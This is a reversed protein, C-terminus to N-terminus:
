FVTSVSKLGFDSKWSLEECKVRSGTDRAFIVVSIMNRLITDLLVLLTLVDEFYFVICM